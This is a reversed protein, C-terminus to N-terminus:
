HLTAHEGSDSVLHTHQRLVEHQGVDKYFHGMSYGCLLAFSHTQALQNWLMELRIAAATQGAQWLVDVMEGYARIVCDKRGRCAQEIVPIMSDRFKSTDPMGDHMFRSLMDAADVMILDNAAELRSLDFYHGALVARIADRHQPTAIVIAPLGAIFGEGLFKGVMQALSERSEYFRVAHVRTAAAVAESDPSHTTIRLEGESWNRDHVTAIRSIDEPTLQRDGAAQYGCLIPIGLTHALEHGLSEIAIATDLDGRQALLSVLEGYIRQKVGPTVFRALATRFGEVSIRGEVTLGDLVDTADLLLLRGEIVARRFELGSESLRRSIAAWHSATALVIVQEGATLGETVFPAVRDALFADTQYFGAVHVSPQSPSASM